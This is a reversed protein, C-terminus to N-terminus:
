NILSRGQMMNIGERRVCEILPNDKSDVRWVFSLTREINLEPTNLIALQGTDVSKKVELYPLCSLCESNIVLSKIVPVFDYERWVNLHRIHSFIASDFVARTGSGQERLVWSSNELMSLSIEPNGAYPHEASCVIVLRDKCWEQQMLRQDDCRGEIIGLDCQYNLLESIVNHTSYVSFDLRLEPYTQNLFSILEPMLYEAPTQSASVRLLGSMVQQDMFGSEIHRADQLLRKVRPQLWMGWYTLSMRKGHREFLPRGLIKELQALSMSTASQTLSLKDAAQSVSGTECVAEFVALQKLSFKM